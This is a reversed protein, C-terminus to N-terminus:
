KENQYEAFMKIMESNFAPIDQPKRSTVLKGDRVVEKDVWKAGANELKEGAAELAQKPKTLEDQEFGNETLIAVKLGALQQTM